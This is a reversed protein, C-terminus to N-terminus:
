TTWAGTAPASEAEPRTTADYATPALLVAVGSLATAVTAAVRTKVYWKM